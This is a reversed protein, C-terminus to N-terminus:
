IKSCGSQPGASCEEGLFSPNCRKKHWQLLLESKGCNNLNKATGTVVSTPIKAM